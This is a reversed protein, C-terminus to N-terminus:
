DDNVKGESCFRGCYRILKALRKAVPEYAEAEDGAVLTEERSVSV